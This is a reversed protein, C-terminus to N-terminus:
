ADFLVEIKELSIDQLTPVIIDADLLFNRDHTTEVAVVRTGANKASTIGALSDEIVVCENPSVKLLEAARLYCDPWPKGNLVDDASVILEFENEFNVEKLIFDIFSRRANSVLAVKYKQKVSSFFEVFGPLTGIGKSLEQLYGYKKAELTRIEEDSKEPLSRKFADFTRHAKGIADGSRVLERGIEGFVKQSAQLHLKMTDVIIGDMDFLVARLKM